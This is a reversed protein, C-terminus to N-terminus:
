KGLLFRKTSKMYQLLEYLCKINKSTIQNSQDKINIWFKEAVDHRRLKHLVHISACIDGIELKNEVNRLLLENVLCDVSQNLDIHRTYVELLRILQRNDNSKIVSDLLRNYTFTKELEKLIDFVEYHLMKTLALRSIDDTLDDNPINTIISLVGNSTHSREINKLVEEPNILSIKNCEDDDQTEAYPEQLNNCLALFEDHGVKRVVVPLEQIDCGDQVLITTQGIKSSKGNNNGDDKFNKQHYIATIHLYNKNATLKAQNLLCRLMLM